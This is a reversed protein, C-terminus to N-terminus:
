LEPFTLFYTTCKLKPKLSNLHLFDKSDYLFLVMFQEFTRKIVKSLIFVLDSKSEIDVAM